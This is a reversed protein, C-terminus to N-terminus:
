TTPATPKATKGSAVKNAVEFGWEGLKQENGKYLGGLVDRVSRAYMMLTGKVANDTGILLDRDQTAKEAERYLRASLKNQTDAEATKAALDAMDLGNLPSSAGDSAHKETLAKCLALFQEPNKPINIRAM